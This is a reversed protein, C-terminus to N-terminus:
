IKALPMTQLTETAPAAQWEVGVRAYRGQVRVMAGSRQDPLMDRSALHCSVKCDIHAGFLGQL